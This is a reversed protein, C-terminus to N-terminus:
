GVTIQEVPYDIKARKRSESFSLAFTLSGVRGFYMLMIIVLRSLGNLDRTVGTSIGVTGIASFAEVAIDSLALNKQAMMIAVM